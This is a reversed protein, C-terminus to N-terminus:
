PIWKKLRLNSACIYVENSVIIIVNYLRMSIYMCVYSRVSAYMKSKKKKKIIERQLWILNHNFRFIMHIKKCQM